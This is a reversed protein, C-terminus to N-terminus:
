GPVTGRIALLQALLRPFREAPPEAGRGFRGGFSAGASGASSVLWSVAAVSIHDTM